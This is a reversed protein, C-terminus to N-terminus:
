RRVEYNFGGSELNEVEGSLELLRNTVQEQEQHTPMPIPMARLDNISLNPQMLTNVHSVVYDKVSQTSLYAFLFSISVGDKAPAIAAVRQNLLSRDYSEPVIAVKLGGSIITRTLAIVISGKPVAVSAFKESFDDPLGNDSETVFERVGVNTIKISKISGAPSFDGSKFAFGNIITAVDDLRHKKWDKGLETFVFQLHSDFLARANQLNKEANAKATAIGDFAEDLIAVIRQQESIAPIPIAVDKLKGGSLEKFTAGSGLDNLLPVISGLYYYLFKHDLQESPILGKCGQNTTMPVTNIVLHGIPARSSLIVSLAPLLRASSNRMGADTITRATQGVYPTARKGMEAPTIWQHAGDWYEAVGTKPTGGNVVTCTEDITKLLWGAKM